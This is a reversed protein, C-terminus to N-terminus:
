ILNQTSEFSRCTRLSHSERPFQQPKLPRNHSIKRPLRTVVRRARSTQQSNATRGINPELRGNLLTGMVKKAEAFDNQRLVNGLRHEDDIKDSLMCVADM